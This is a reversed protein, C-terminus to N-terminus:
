KKNNKMVYHLNASQVQDLDIQVIKNDCNIKITNNEKNFDALKGTFRKQGNILVQSTLKINKGVFKSYHEAKILPREIGPSSIELSYQENLEAVQLIRNILKTAKTCDEITVGNDDNLTDIMIQMTDKDLQKVRVLEYGLDNLPPEILSIIKAEIAM